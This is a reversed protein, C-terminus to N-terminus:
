IGVGGERWSRSRDEDVMLNYAKFASGFGIVASMIWALVFLLVGGTIPTKGTVMPNMQAFSVLAIFIGIVFLFASVVAVNQYRRAKQKRDM